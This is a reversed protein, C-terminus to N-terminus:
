RLLGRFSHQGLQPDFWRGGTRLDETSGVSSHSEDLAILLQTAELYPFYQLSSFRHNHRRNLIAALHIEFDPLIYFLLCNSRALKILSKKQFENRGWHSVRTGVTAYCITMKVVIEM